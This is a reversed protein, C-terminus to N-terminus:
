WRLGFFSVVLVIVKGVFVCFSYNDLVIVDFWILYSFFIECIEILGNLM